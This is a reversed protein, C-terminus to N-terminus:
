SRFVSIAAAMNPNVEAKGNTEERTNKRGKRGKNEGNRTKANLSTDRYYIIHCDSITVKSHSRRFAVQKGSFKHPGKTIFIVRKEM